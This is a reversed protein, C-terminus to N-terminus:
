APARAAAARSLIAGLIRKPTAPTENIEVGLPRLADNIANVIAGAPAIAAGEGVGKVGHRTHPSPTESHDLRIAPLEAAGPLIYDALTTTLPQGSADYLVEEFMATGIGQAAGGYAQGELIMPNVRRGCDEFIVYDLIEVKGTAPDVAVVAAHTAYSFVGTDVDPKYGETVELGLTDVTDPLLDPRLYWARAIDGFSVSAAGAFAAGDKLVIDEPRCQLRHAAHIKLRTALTECAKAVAGGAMVMGRSAYAGTSYPTTGTDGM